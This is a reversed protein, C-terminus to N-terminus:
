AIHVIAWRTSLIWPAAYQGALVAASNLMM